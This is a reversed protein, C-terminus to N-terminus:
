IRKEYVMDFNNVYQNFEKFTLGDPIDPIETLKRIDTQEFGSTIEDLAKEISSYGRIGKKPMNSHEFHYWIGNSYFLVICHMRVEKDFNDENEYGRHCFLKVEYGLRELSFKIMKAQEICTGLGSNLMEELSSIRYTERFKYLNNLHKFGAKDLWGYTINTDMFKMLENVTKVSLLDYKRDKNDNFVIINKDEFIYYPKTGIVDFKGNDFFITDEEPLAIIKTGASINLLYEESQKDKELTRNTYHCLLSINNLIDFGSVDELGIDNSDDLMCSKLNSGFIIAGASGGFIVGDNNLYDQIKTFAGSNKLEYLLKFTNGGGIFLTSYNNLDKFVIEEASRVMEIYPVEVDTLEKNIWEYCSDYLNSEMALPIYLIPKTNDIVENLKKYADIAQKGDGGGNLFVRM